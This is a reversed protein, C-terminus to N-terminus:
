EEPEKSNKEEKLQEYRKQRNPNVFKINEGNPKDKQPAAM